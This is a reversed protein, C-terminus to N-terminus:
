SSSRPPWSLVPETRGIDFGRWDDASPPPTYPYYGRKNQSSNPSNPGSKHPNENQRAHPRQDSFDPKYPLRHADPVKQQWPMEMETEQDRAQYTELREEGREEQKEIQREGQREPQRELQKEPQREPVKEHWPMRDSSMRESPQTNVVNIPHISPPIPVDVRRAEYADSVRPARIEPFVPVEQMSPGTQREQREGRAERRTDRKPIQQERQERQTYGAPTQPPINQTPRQTYAQQQSQEQKISGTRIPYIESVTIEEFKGGENNNVYHRMEQAQADQAERVRAAYISVMTQLEEIQISLETIRGKVGFVAFPMMMFALVVIFGVALVLLQGWLPLWEPFSFVM